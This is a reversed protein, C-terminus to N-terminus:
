DDPLDWGMPKQLATQITQIRNQDTGNRNNETCFNDAFAGSPDRRFTLRLDLPQALAKADEIHVALALHERDTRTFRETVRIVDSHPALYGFTLEKRIGRTEVVLTKGEWRGVSYGNMKPSYDADKPDAERPIARGDSYIDRVQTDEEFLQEIRGPTQTITMTSQGGRYANIVGRPWCDFHPEGYPKGALNSARRKEYVNRYAPTYPIDIWSGAGDRRSLPKDAVLWPNDGPGQEPHWFGSIDPTNDAYYMDHSAVTHRVPGVAASPSALSGCALALLWVTQPRFRASIESFKPM